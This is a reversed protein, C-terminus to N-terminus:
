QFSSRMHSDAVFNAVREAVLEVVCFCLLKEVFM